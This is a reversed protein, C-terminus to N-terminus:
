RIKSEAFSIIESEPKFLTKQKMALVHINKNKRYISNANIQTASLKWAM